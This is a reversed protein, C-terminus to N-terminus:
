RGRRGGRPRQPALRLQAIPGLVARGRQELQHIKQVWEELSAYLDALLPKIEAPDTLLRLRGFRGSLGNLLLNGEEALDDLPATEERSLIATVALQADYMEDPLTRFLWDETKAFLGSGRTAASLADVDEVKGHGIAEQLLLCKGIV